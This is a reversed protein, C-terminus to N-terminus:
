HVIVCLLGRGQALASSAEACVTFEAVRPEAERVAVRDDANMQNRLIKGAGKKWVEPKLFAGSSLM